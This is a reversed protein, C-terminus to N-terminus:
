MNYNKVPVLINSPTSTCIHLKGNLYITEPEAANVQTNCWGVSVGLIAGDAGLLRNFIVIHLENVTKIAGDDGLLRHLM